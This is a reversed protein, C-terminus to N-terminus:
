VAVKKYGGYEGFSLESSMVCRGCVEVHCSHTWSSDGVPSVVEDGGIGVCAESPTGSDDCLDCLASEVESWCEVDVSVGISCIAEEVVSVVSEFDGDDGSMCVVESDCCVVDYEVSVSM